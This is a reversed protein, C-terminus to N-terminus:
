VGVLGDLRALAAPGIGRVESLEDVSTFRGHESRWDLIRQALVPGIGPLADLQGLDATNLDVVSRGDPTPDPPAVAGGASQPAPAVAQGPLPVLVQEGDVVVRALNVSSLDATTTAGGAAEVADAIRAGAPLRVVGPRLVQGVVHVVVEGDATAGPSAGDTPARGSPAAVSPATGSPGTGSAAGPPPSPVPLPQATPRPDGALPARALAAGAVVAGVVALAVGAIVADRPTLRWRWTPRAGVPRHRARRSRQQARTMVDADDGDVPPWTMRPEATDEDPTPARGASAPLPDGHTVRYSTSARALASRREPREGVLAGASTTTDLPAPVWGPAVSTREAPGRPAALRLLREHAIRGGSTM